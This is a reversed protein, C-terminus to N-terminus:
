VKHCPRINPFFSHITYKRPFIPSLDYKHRAIQSKLIIIITFYRMKYKTTIDGKNSKNKQM